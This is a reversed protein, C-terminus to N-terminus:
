KKSELQKLLDIFKEHLKDETCDPGFIICFNNNYSIAATCGEGECSCTITKKSSILDVTVNIKDGFDYAKIDTFNIDKIKITKTYTQFVKNNAVNIDKTVYILETKTSNLKFMRKSVYCIRKGSNYDICEGDKCKTLIKNLSEITNTQAYSFTSVIFIFIFKLLHSKSM